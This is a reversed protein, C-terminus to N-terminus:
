RWRQLALTLAFVNALTLGIIALCAADRYRNWGEREPTCARIPHRSTM